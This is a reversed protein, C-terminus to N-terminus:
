RHNGKKCFVLYTAHNRYLSRQKGWISSVIKSPRRTTLWEYPEGLEACTWLEMWQPRHNHIYGQCKVVLFKETVRWAERLGRLYLEKLEKENAGMAKFRTEEISNSGKTHFPPDYVVTPCSADTFPLNFFDAVVTKARKQDLDCGFVKKDSGKWFLGSGYTLDVIPEQAGVVEIISAMAAASTADIVTYHKM